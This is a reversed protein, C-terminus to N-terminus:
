ISGQKQGNLVELYDIVMAAKPYVRFMELDEPKLSLREPAAWGLITLESRLDKQRIRLDYAAGWIEWPVAFFSRFEFSVVVLGLGGGATFEDMDKAQNPQVADLRISGSGTHKAEVMIPKDYYRGIFDVSAKHTVKVDFVRGYKDRLPIFETPIKEIFAIGRSRYWENTKRIIGEFSMGRNAHSYDKLRYM